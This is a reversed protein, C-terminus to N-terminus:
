QITYSVSPLAIVRGDPAKVKIDEIYLKDGANCNMLFSKSEGSIVSGNIRRSMFTGEKLNIRSLEFSLISYSINFDFNEITCGVGTVGALDAKKIKGGKKGALSIYPLPIRKVRYIRSGVVKKGNYANLTLTSNNGLPILYYLLKNAKIIKSDKASLSDVSSCSIIRVPNEIGAYVVNMKELEFGIIEQSKLQNLFCIILLIAKIHKISKKM